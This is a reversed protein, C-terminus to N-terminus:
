LGALPMGIWEQKEETGCNKLTLMRTGSMMRGNLHDSQSALRPFIKCALNIFIDVTSGILQLVGIDKLGDSRNITSCTCPWNRMSPFSRSVKGAQTPIRPFINMLM